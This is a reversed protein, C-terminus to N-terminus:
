NFRKSGSSRRRKTETSAASTKLAQDYMSGPGLSCLAFVERVARASPEPVDSTTGLEMCTKKTARTLCSLIQERADQEDKDEAQICVDSRDEVIHRYAKEVTTWENVNYRTSSM